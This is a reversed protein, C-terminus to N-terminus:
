RVRRLRAVFGSALVVGLGSWAGAHLIAGPDGAAVDRYHWLAPGLELASAAALRAVGPHALGVLHEPAVAGAVAIFLFLAAAAGNGLALVTVLACSGVAAAAAVGAVATGAHWGTATTCAIVLVAAPIVAALWRGTAVALPTTPHTLATAMAARDTEAGAAFAAGLVAGLAGAQLAVAVPDLGRTHLWLLAAGLLLLSVGFRTRVLRPRVLLWEANVCLVFRV